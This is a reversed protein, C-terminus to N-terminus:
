IKITGNEDIVIADPSTCLHPKDPKIFLGVLIINKNYLNKYCLLAIKEYKNGYQLSPLNKRVHRSTILWNKLIM